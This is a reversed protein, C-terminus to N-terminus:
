LVVVKPHTIEENYCATQFKNLQIVHTKHLIERTMVAANVPLWEGLDFKIFKDIM